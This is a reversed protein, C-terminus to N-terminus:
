RIIEDARQLIGDPVDLGIARATRLNIALFFDATEVPVDAPAAGELIKAALRSAQEGMTAVRAGFTLLAPPRPGAPGSVLPLKHAIATKEIQALNRLFFAGPFALIADIEGPITRLAENIEESTRVEPTVLELGLTGAAKELEALAQVSATEEPNFPAFIRKAGPDIRQLWDLMKPMNGGGRIGTLNGEPMILSDVLGSMVPDYVLVFVVPIGTSEVARKAERTAPTTLSFLLDVDKEVLKQVAAELKDAEIVPGDYVYTVNEGEIYGMRTMGAKFGELASHAGASLNIVGITFTKPQEAGCATLLLVAYILLGSM